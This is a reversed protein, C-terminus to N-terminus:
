REGPALSFVDQYRTLRDETGLSYVGRKLTENRPLRNVASGVASRVGRPLRRWWDGYYVGLHRKYGGFLEDPGQGILAVKVDQRARQCVFYMPVISSAAIPEELCEVIQPM